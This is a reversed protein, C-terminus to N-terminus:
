PPLLCRNELWLSQKYAEECDLYRATPVYSPRLCYPPTTSASHTTYRADPHVILDSMVALYEGLLPLAGPIDLRVLREMANQYSAAQRAVQVLASPTSM